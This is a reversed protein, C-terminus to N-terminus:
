YARGTFGFILDNKSTARRSTRKKTKLHIDFFIRCAFELFFSISIKNASDILENHPVFKHSAIIRIPNFADTHKTHTTPAYLYLSNYVNWRIYKPAKPRIMLKLKNSM